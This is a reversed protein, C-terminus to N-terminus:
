YRRHDQRGAKVLWSGRLFGCVQMPNVQYDEDWVRSFNQTEDIINGRQLWQFRRIMAKVEGRAMDHGVRGSNQLLSCSVLAHGTSEAVKVLFKYFIESHASQTSLKIVSIPETFLEPCCVRCVIETRSESCAGCEQPCINHLFSMDPEDEDMILDFRFNEDDEKMVEYIKVVAKAILEHRKKLTNSSTTIWGDGTMENDDIGPLMYVDDDPAIGRGDRLASQMESEYGYLWALMDTVYSDNKDVQIETIIEKSPKIHEAGSHIRCHIGHPLFSLLLCLVLVNMPQMNSM